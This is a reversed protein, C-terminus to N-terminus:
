EVPFMVSIRDGVERALSRLPKKSEIELDVNLFYPPKM